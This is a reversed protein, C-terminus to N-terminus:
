HSNKVSPFYFYLFSSKMSLSGPLLQSRRKTEERKKVIFIVHCALVCSTFINKKWTCNWKMFKLFLHYKKSLLIKLLNIEYKPQFRNSWWNRRMNYFNDILVSHFFFLSFSIFNLCFFYLIFYFYIQITTILLFIEKILHLEFETM